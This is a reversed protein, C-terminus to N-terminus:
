RVETHADIVSDRIARLRLWISEMSPRDRPEAHWCSRMLECLNPDIASNLAPRLTEGAILKRRMEEARITYYPVNGTFIEYLTMGFAFVDTTSNLRKTAFVEPALWRLNIPKM